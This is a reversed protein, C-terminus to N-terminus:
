RYVANRNAIRLITIAQEKKNVKYIIRFYGYRLRYNNQNHLKKSHIPYPNTSLQNIKESIKKALKNPIKNLEKSAKRTILLQM